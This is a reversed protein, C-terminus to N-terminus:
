GWLRFGELSLSFDSAAIALHAITFVGILTFLLPSPRRVSRAGIAL